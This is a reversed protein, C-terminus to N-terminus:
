WQWQGGRQAVQCNWCRDRRTTSCWCPQCSEQSECAPELTGLLPARSHCAVVWRAQTQTWTARCCCCIRDRGMDCMSCLTTVMHTGTIAHLAATEYTTCVEACRCFSLQCREREANRRRRRRQLRSWRRSTRWPWRRCRTHLKWRWRQRHSTHQQPRKM